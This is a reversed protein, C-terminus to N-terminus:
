TSLPSTEYGIESVITLPLMAASSVFMTAIEDSRASKPEPMKGHTRTLPMPIEQRGAQIARPEELM